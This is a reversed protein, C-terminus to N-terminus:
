LSGSACKNIKLKLICKRSIFKVEYRHNDGKLYKNTFCARSLGYSFKCFVLAVM